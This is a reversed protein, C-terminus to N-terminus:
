SYVFEKWWVTRYGVEKKFALNVRLKSYVMKNPPTKLIWNRILTFTFLRKVLLLHSVAMKFQLRVYVVTMYGGDQIPLIKLIWTRILRVLCVSEVLSYPTLGGDQKLQIKLIFKIYWQITLNFILFSIASAFSDLNSEQKRWGDM